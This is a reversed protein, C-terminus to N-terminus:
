FRYGLGLSLIAAPRISAYLRAQTRLYWRQSLPVQVGAGTVMGRSQGGRNGGAVFGIDVFPRVNRRGQLRLGGGALNVAQPGGAFFHTVEGFLALRGSCLLCAEVGAQAGASGRGYDGYAGGGATAGLEFRQAPVVASTLLLLLVSRIVSSGELSAFFYIAVIV